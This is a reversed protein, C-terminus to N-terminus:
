TIKSKLWSYLQRTQRLIEQTKERTLWQTLEQIEETYRSELYYSNLIELLQYQDDGTKSSLSLHEWLRILNHTYPPTKQHQIVYLAKLIKEIAQQCMFAVYLFRQADFMAQATELDYDALKLWNQIVKENM